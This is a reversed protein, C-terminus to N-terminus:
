AQPDIERQFMLVSGPEQERPTPVPPAEKKAHFYSSVSRFVGKADKLHHRKVMIFYVGILAPVISNLFFVLLSLGVATYGPISYQALFFVALNERVGLGSVSIPLLGASWIFIVVLATSILDIHHIENLLLYYQFSLCIFVAISFVLTRLFIKPYDVEKEHMRSFFSRKLLLPLLFYGALVLLAAGWMYLTLGPFVFPLAILVLILKIFTQFFKEIGFAFVKGNKKGPLLFIKTIEAHGGPIMLRFAFGAFFSPILDHNDFSSSNSEVLYKWRAFQSFLNIFVLGFLTIFVPGSIELIAAIM